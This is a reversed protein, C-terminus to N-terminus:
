NKTEEEKVVVKGCLVERSSATYNEQHVGMFYREMAFQFRTQYRPPAVITPMHKAAIRKGHSELLKVFDYTRMYDIIGVSVQKTTEDILVLMSYDMVNCKALFSTDNAICRRLFGKARRTLPLPFGSTYEMFNQDLLVSSGNKTSTSSSAPLSTDEIDPQDESPTPVEIEEENVDSIDIHRNTRSGKLDFARSIHSCSFSLNEMVIFRFHYRSGIKIEYIGMIKALITPIDMFLAMKM